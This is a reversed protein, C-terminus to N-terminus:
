TPITCQSTPDREKMVRLQLVEDKTLARLATGNSDLGNKNLCRLNGTAFGWLWAQPPMKGNQCVATNTRAESALFQVHCLQVKTSSIRKGRLERIQDATLREIISLISGLTLLITTKSIGPADAARSVRMMAAMKVITYVTVM